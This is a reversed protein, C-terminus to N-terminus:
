VGYDVMVSWVTEEKGGPTRTIGRKPQTFPYLHAVPCAFIASLPPNSGGTGSKPPVRSKWDREKLWRPCREAAPGPYM